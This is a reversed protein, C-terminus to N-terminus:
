RFDKASPMVQEPTVSLPEVRAAVVNTTGDRRQLVGSVTIVPELRWLLRFREYVPPKVIVNALGFEDELTVFLFGKATAPRQRCVVLGAVRVREGDRLRDLMVSTAIGENLRPRFFQMWHYRPSLGSVAYDAEAEEQPTMEPLTVLDQEIPLRLEEQLPRFPADPRATAAHHVDPRYILGLQWLLERRRLGLERFAGIAILNEVAERSLGTRRLFDRLSSYPGDRRARELQALQTAGIGEVYRFGLRLRGDEVTCRAHSANVDVPLIEVGHRRADGIIVEPSYFGMPQNNLLACVFEVPYYLKLWSSEYALLAFAAAHSKPFGFGSFGLLKDFVMRATEEPVGKAAAGDRFAPWMEEMATKARKRSIARRLQEAQGASFGALAMAVQLVQDQYLIVGLTERLTEELLPHDYAIPERGQRRAIYPNVAGGVIPGPRVIAVEIMLDELREPRTRPLTQMQARSEIQFVGLTDGRQIMEYVRKDAHDIRGLDLAEGRTEYILALCEDVLSLMGLALFDIKVFRGDDISDKDWTCLVRGDMAAPELPVIETLPRQALVVGGVHQSIHRPLGKLEDTLAILERWLPADIRARFAPLREMEELLPGSSYSACLKALRDIEGQPLGLALGVERVASRLRYTPFTCTLAANEGRTAFVRELLAARVNRPFDLDIDPVSALEENLFRGLFLDTAIPDIHSLGILYCVISSVSSGRGRGPQPSHPGRRPPATPDSEALEDAIDRALLLLDRYHLFFGALRHKAILRLEERLRAEARARHDPRQPLYRRPLEEWCLHALYDDPTEGSSAHYSPFAYDLDTALNFSCLDALRAANRVAEPQERFLAATEEASKLYFESNPRRQQHCGDLTTRAGTAVLVDQLRHRERVHYHVNGTAVTHLGLRKALAALARNRPTDGYVLNQQLEVFCRRPGFAERLQRLAAEATDLDGADIATAAEGRRCGSLAILGAAHAPLLAPDLAPHLRDVARAATLLRCLNAYGARDAALLTLHHGTTLTVEAGTIPRVGWAKGAQAFEMAGYLNDHDTLALAEYGLAKARLVLEEPTSAGEHLSYASHCHLEIYASM